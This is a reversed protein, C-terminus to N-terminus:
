AAWIGEQWFQTAMMNWGSGIAEILHRCSEIGAEVSTCAQCGTCWAEEDPVDTRLWTWSRRRATLVTLQM